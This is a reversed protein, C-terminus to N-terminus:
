NTSWCTAPLFTHAENFFRRATAAAEEFPMPGNLSEGQFVVNGHNDADAEADPEQHAAGGEVSKDVYMSENKFVSFSYAFDITSAAEQWQHM